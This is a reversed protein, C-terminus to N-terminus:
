GWITVMISETIHRTYNLSEHRRISRSYLWSGYMEIFQFYWLVTNKSTLIGSGNEIGGSYRPLLLFNLTVKINYVIHTHHGLPALPCLIQKCLCPSLCSFGWVCYNSITFVVPITSDKTSMWNTVDAWLHWTQPAPVLVESNKLFTFLCHRLLFEPWSQKILLLM